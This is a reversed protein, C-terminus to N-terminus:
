MMSLREVLRNSIADRDNIDEKNQELTKMNSNLRSEAKGGESGWAFVIICHKDEAGDNSVHVTGDCFILIPLATCHLFAWGFFNHVTKHSLTMAFDFMVFFSSLCAVELLNVDSIINYACTTPLGLEILESIELVKKILKKRLIFIKCKNIDESFNEIYSSVLNKRILNCTDEHLSNVFGITHGEGEKIGKYFGSTLLQRGCCHQGM